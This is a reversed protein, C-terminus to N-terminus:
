SSKKDDSDGPKPAEPAVFSTIKKKLKVVPAVSPAPAPAMAVPAEEHGALFQDLPEYFLFTSYAADIVGVAVQDIKGAKEKDRSVLLLAFVDGIKPGTGDLDLRPSLNYNLTVGAVRSKNKVPLEHREPMAALGLIIGHKEVEFRMFPQFVKLDTSPVVGGELLKVGHLACIEEYGQEMMRFRAQGELERARKKDLGSRDRVMEFAKLAEARIRDELDLLLERHLVRRLFAAPHTM